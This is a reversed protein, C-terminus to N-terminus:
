NFRSSQIGAKAPIVRWTLGEEGCHAVGRSRTGRQAFPAPLRARAPVRRVGARLRRDVHDARSRRDVARHDAPHRFRDLRHRRARAVLTRPRSQPQLCGILMLIGSATAWVAIIWILAVLTIAPGCCRWSAPRSTSWAKSSSCAGASATGRRRSAPSSPSCATSSCTLPSCSSSAGPRGRGPEASLDFRFRHGLHRAARGGVLRGGLGRENRRLAGDTRGKGSATSAAM